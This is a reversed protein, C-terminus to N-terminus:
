PWNFKANDLLIKKDIVQDYLIFYRFTGEFSDGDKVSSYM